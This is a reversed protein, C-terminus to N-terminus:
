RSKVVWASVSAVFLAILLAWCWLPIYSVFREAILAVLFLLVFPVSRGVVEKSSGVM